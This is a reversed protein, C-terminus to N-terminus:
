REREAHKSARRARRVSWACAILVVACAAAFGHRTWAYVSGPRLVPIDAVVLGTGDVFPNRLALVEGRASVIATYGNTAARVVAYRNEIPRMRANEFHYDRVAHWDNTPVVVIPVGDRGYGSAIDTFNDDQCIMGGVRHGAAPVEIRTGDGPEYGELLPILHTKRYEAIRTGDPGIFAIRNDNRSEDFYGVALTVGRARALDRLPEFLDRRSAATASFGTEPSVILVAGQDAARAFLPQLVQQVVYAAPTRRGSPLDRHVWGVAAARVTTSPAEYWRIADYAAIPALLGALALAHSRRRPTERVIRLLLTQGTVLVFVIGPTGTVDIFQIAWPAASWVRVFSQATGWVPVAHASIWEAVVAAAGVGVAGALGPWRIVRAVVVSLGIWITTVYVGLGAAMTWPFATVALLPVAYTMGFALGVLTARGSRGPPGSSLALLWPVLAVLQLYWAHAPFDSLFILGGSTAGLAVSLALPPSKRARGAGCDATRTKVM